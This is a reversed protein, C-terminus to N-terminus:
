SPVQRRWNCAFRFIESLKERLFSSPSSFFHESPSAPLYLLPLSSVPGQQAQNVGYNPDTSCGPVGREWDRCGLDRLGIKGLDEAEFSVCGVVKGLGRWQLSAQPASHDCTPFAGLLRWAGCTRHLTEWHALSKSVPNLDQSSPVM